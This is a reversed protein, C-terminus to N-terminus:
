FDNWRGNDVCQACPPGVLAFTSRGTRCLCKEVSVVKKNLGWEDSTRDYLWQCVLHGDGPVSDCVAKCQAAHELCYEVSLDVGNARQEDLKKRLLAYDAPRVLFYAVDAVYTKVLMARLTGGLVSEACVFTSPHRPVKRCETFWKIYEGYYYPMAARTMIAFNDNAPMVTSLVGRSGCGTLGAVWVAREDHVQEKSPWTSLPQMQRALVLDPRMRIVWGYKKGRKEEAEEILRKCHLFKYGVAWGMEKCKPPNAAVDAEFDDFYLAKAKFKEMALERVFTENGGQQEMELLDGKGTGGLSLVFFVDADGRLPGILQRLHNEYVERMAWTRVEGSYCIAISAASDAAGSAMVTPSSTPSSTPITTAPESPDPTTATGTPVEYSVGRSGVGGGSGPGGTGATDGASSPPRDLDLRGQSTSSVGADLDYSFLMLLGLFLVLSGLQQGFSM